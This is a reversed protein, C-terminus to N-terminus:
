LMNTSQISSQLPKSVLYPLGELLAMDCTTNKDPMAKSLEDYLMQHIRTDSLVYWTGLVLTHSTTDMGASLMLIAEATLDQDSPTYQGKETNPNLM